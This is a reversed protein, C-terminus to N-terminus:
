LMNCLRKYSKYLEAHNPRFRPDPHIMKGAFLKIMEIKINDLDLVKLEALCSIISIGISYMDVKDAFVDLKDKRNFHLSLYESFTNCEAHVNVGCSAFFQVVDLRLSFSKINEQIFRFIDDHTPPRNTSSMHVAIKYEPPYYPYTYSKIYDIVDYTNKMTTCIGWDILYIQKASPSFVLNRPKIDNHIMNEKKLMALGAIVKDFYKFIKVAWQIRSTDSLESKNVCVVFLEAGGNPYAIQPSGEKVNKALSEPIDEMDKKTPTKIDCTYRIPLAFSKFKNGIADMMKKELNFENTSSFVKGVDKKSRTIKEGNYEPKKCALPPTFVSGYTGSALYKGGQHHHQSDM